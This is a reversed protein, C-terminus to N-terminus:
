RSVTRATRTHILEDTGHYYDPVRRDVIARELPPVAACVITLVRLGAPLQLVDPCQATVPLASSPPADHDSHRAM